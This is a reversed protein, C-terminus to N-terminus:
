TFKNCTLFKFRHWKSGEECHDWEISFFWSWYFDYKLMNRNSDGNELYDCKLIRSWSFIPLQLSIYMLLPTMRHCIDTKRDSLLLLSQEIKCWKRYECFLHCVTLNVKFILTMTLSSFIQGQSMRNSINFEMYTYKLRKPVQFCVNVCFSVFVFVSVCVHSYLKCFYM